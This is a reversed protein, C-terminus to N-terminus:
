VLRRTSQMDDDCGAPRARCEDNALRAAILISVKEAHDVLYFHDGPLTVIETDATSALRWADLKCHCLPDELGCFVVLRSATRTHRLTRVFSDCVAFDKRLLAATRQRLQPHALVEPVLGGFRDASALIEDDSAVLPDGTFLPRAHDPPVNASAFLTSCRVPGHELRAALALGLYAGMSHGFIAIEGSTGLRTLQDALDNVADTATHLPRERWRRGRGPLELLVPEVWTPLVRILESFIQASGGAHHLLVLPLRNM